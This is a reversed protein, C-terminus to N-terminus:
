FNHAEQPRGMGIASQAPDLSLIRTLARAAAEGVLSRSEQIHCTMRRAAEDADSRRISLLIGRHQRYTEIVRKPTLFDGSRVIRIHENVSRLLNLLTENGALCALDEHFKEDAHVMDADPVPENGKPLTWRDVMDDLQPRYGKEALRRVVGQELLLRIDYHEEIRPLDPKLARYGAWSQHELFGERELRRLADRVPTRSVAFENAIAEEVLRQRPLYEWLILRRKLESHVRDSLVAM